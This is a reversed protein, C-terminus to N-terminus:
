KPLTPLVEVVVYLFNGTVFSAVSHLKECQLQMDMFFENLKGPFGNLPSKDGLCFTRAEGVAMEDVEYIIEQPHWVREIGEKLELGTLQDSM